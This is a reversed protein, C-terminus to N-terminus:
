YTGAGSVASSNLLKLQQLGAMTGLLQFSEHSLNHCVHTTFVIDAGARLVLPKLRQM